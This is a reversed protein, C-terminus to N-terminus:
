ENSCSVSYSFKYIRAYVVYEISKDFGSVLKVIQGYPVKRRKPVRNWLIDSELEVVSLGTDPDILEKRRPNGDKDVCDKHKRKHVPSECNIKVASIEPAYTSSIGIFALYYLSILTAKIRKM